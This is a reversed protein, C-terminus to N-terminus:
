SGFQSPSYIHLTHLHVSIVIASKVVYSGQGIAESDQFQWILDDILGNEM